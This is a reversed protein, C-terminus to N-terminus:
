RTTPRDLPLRFAPNDRGLRDHRRHLHRDTRQNIKNGIRDPYAILPGGLAAKWGNTVQGEVLRGEAKRGKRM